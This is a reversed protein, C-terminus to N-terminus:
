ATDESEARLITEYEETATQCLNMALNRDYVHPDTLSAKWAETIADYHSPMTRISEAYKPVLKKRQWIHLHKLDSRRDLASIVEDPVKEIASGFFTASIDYRRRFAELATWRRSKDEKELYALVSLDRLVNAGYVLENRNARAV